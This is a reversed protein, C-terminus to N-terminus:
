FVIQLIPYIICDLRIISPQIKFSPSSIPFVELLNYRESFLHQPSFILVNYIETLSNPIDRISDRIMALTQQNYAM